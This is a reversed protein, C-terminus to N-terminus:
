YPDYKRLVVSTALQTPPKQSGLENRIRLGKLWRREHCRCKSSASGTGTSLIILYRTDHCSSRSKMDIRNTAYFIVRSNANVWPEEEKGVLFKRDSDPGLYVFCESPEFVGM